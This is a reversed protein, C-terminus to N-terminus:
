FREQPDDDSKTTSQFGTHEKVRAFYLIFVAFQSLVMRALEVSDSVTAM